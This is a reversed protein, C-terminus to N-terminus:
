RWRDCCRKGELVIFWRSNTRPPVVGGATRVLSVRPGSPGVNKRRSNTDRWGSWGLVMRKKPVFWALFTERKKAHRATPPKSSSENPKELMPYHGVGELTVAGFDAYKKNTEVVTPSSPSTDAPDGNM